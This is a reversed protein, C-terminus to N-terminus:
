CVYFLLLSREEKVKEIEGESEDKRACQTGGAGTAELKTVTLYSKHVSYPSKDIVISLHTSAAHCLEPLRQRQEIFTLALRLSIALNNRVIKDVFLPAIPWVSIIANLIRVGRNIIRMARHGHRHMLHSEREAGNALTWNRCQSRIDSQM